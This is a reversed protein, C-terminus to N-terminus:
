IPSGTKPNIGPPPKAPHPLRSFAGPAKGAADMWGGTRARNRRKVVIVVARPVAIVAWIAVM